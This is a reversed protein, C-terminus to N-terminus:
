KSPFVGIKWARQISLTFNIGRTLYTMLIYASIGMEPLLLWLGAVDIIATFINYQMSRVQQGLGKLFGDVITDLYMVPVLPAFLRIYSSVADTHYVAWSLEGAFYWLCIASICSFAFAIGTMRRIIYRTNRRRKRGFSEAVEPVLLSSVSVLLVSPLTMVPMAMGTIIGYTSLAVTASSGSARLGAPIILQETTVLISRVVSGTADPVAIELVRKLASGGGREGEATFNRRDAFYLVALTILSAAEGVATGVVIIACAGQPTAPQLLAVGGMALAMKLIQEFLQEAAHPLTRRMAIFYGSFAASISLFPLSAALIKLCVATDADGLLRTAVPTATSWLLGAAVTSCFAAYLCCARMASKVGKRGEYCGAAVVLRTATLRVGASGLTVALMYVSMILQYLGVGAAGIHGALWSQFVVGLGRMATAAATMILTNVFFKQARDM